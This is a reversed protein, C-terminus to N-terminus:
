TSSNEGGVAGIKCKGMDAEVMPNSEKQAATLKGPGKLMSTDKVNKGQGETIEINRLNTKRDM